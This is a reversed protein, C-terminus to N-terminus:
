VVQHLVNKWYTSQYSFSKWSAESWNQTGASGLPISPSFRALCPCLMHLASSVARLVESSHLGHLYQSLHKAFLNSKFGCLWEPASDLGCQKPFLYGCTPSACGAASVQLLCM